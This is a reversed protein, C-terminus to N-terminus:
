TDLALGINLEKDMATHAIKADISGNAMLASSLVADAEQGIRCTRDEAQRMMSPVWDGEAFVVNAARTMTFGVGASHLNGILVRCNEDEQLRDVEGQRKHMPTDGYILAPEYQELEAYLSRVVDKHYGFLIVKEGPNGELFDRVWDRVLPAKAIGIQQRVSALEEFLIEVAPPELGLVQAVYDINPKGDQGLGYSEAVEAISAGMDSDLKDLDQDEDTVMSEYLKLQQALEDERAVLKSLEPSEVLVVQRQVEPLEPLVERKSRRIMFASRLFEGLEELNSAGRVDFGHITHRGECYRYAYEYYDKGLGDPDCAKVLPWLEIPRSLMPTGSLFVRREADIPDYFKKRKKGKRKPDPELRSGGLVRLTRNADPTKLAHAEDCVLLDWHEDDIQEEFRELVDYNVIVVDSQPWVNKYTRLKYKPKGNKYTGVHEKVRMSAHSVGVSLGQTTWKRFERRWNEKLSAPAIVLIRRCGPLANAVGISMPTKGLGPPDAILTDRRKLAYEIGAKQFPKYALGDPAPPEFDSDAAYSLDHSQERLAERSVAEVVARDTFPADARAAVALSDTLWRRRVPDWRFGADKFIARDEKPGVGYFRHNICDVFVM